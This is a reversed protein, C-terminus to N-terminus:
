CHVQLPVLTLNLPATLSKLSTLVNIHGIYGWIDNSLANM